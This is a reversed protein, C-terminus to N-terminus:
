TDPVDLDVALVDREVTCYRLGDDDLEDVDDM